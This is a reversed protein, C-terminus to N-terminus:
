AKGEVPRLPNLNSEPETKLITKKFELFTFDELLDGKFGFGAMKDEFTKYDIPNELKFKQFEAWENSNKLDAKEATTERQTQIFPKLEAKLLEIYKASNYSGNNKIAGILLGIPNSSYKTSVLKNKLDYAFADLSLQLDSESIKGSTVFESLQRRSVKGSLDSPIVFCPEEASQINTTNSSNLNPVLVIPVNALPEAYAKPSANSVTQERMVLANSASEDLSLSQFLDRSLRFKRWGSRGNKVAIVELFCKQSLRYIVNRLRESSVELLQRLEETTVLATELAGLFQCKKFVFLLLQREKGVIAEFDFKAVTNSVTQERMALPGALAEAYANSVIDSRSVVRAAEISVTQERMALSEAYANSVIDSKSVVRAAEISVTQERMALTKPQKKFDERKLDAGPGVKAEDQISEIAQKNDTQKRNALKPTYTQPENSSQGLNEPQYQPLHEQWPRTPGTRIIKKREAPPATPTSSGMKELRDKQKMLLEDVTAM